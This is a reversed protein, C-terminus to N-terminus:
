YMLGALNFKHPKQSNFYLYVYVLKAYLMFMLVYVFLLYTNHM